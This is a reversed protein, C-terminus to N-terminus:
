WELVETASPIILSMLKPPIMVRVPGHREQIKKKTRHLKEVLAQAHIACPNRMSPSPFVMTTM